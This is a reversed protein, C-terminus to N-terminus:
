RYGGEDIFQTAKNKRQHQRCVIVNDVLKLLPSKGCSLKHLCEGSRADWVLINANTYAAVVMKDRYDWNRIPDHNKIVDTLIRQKVGHIDWVCIDNHRNAKPCTLILEGDFLLPLRRNHHCGEILTRQHGSKADFTRLKHRYAVVMVGDKITYSRHRELVNILCRLIGKRIDYVYISYNSVGIALLDGDVFAAQRFDPLKVLDINNGHFRKTVWNSDLHYARMYVGKWKCTSTLGATNDGTVIRDEQFSVIDEGVESDDAAQKSPRYSAIKALDTTTGYHEWGRSRCRSRWLSDQNTVDRLWRSCSTVHCLDTASLYQFVTQLLDDPVEYISSGSRAVTPCQDESNNGSVENSAM